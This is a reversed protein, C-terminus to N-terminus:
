VELEGSILKPLLRDRAQKLNSNSKNLVLIKAIMPSAVNEFKEIIRDSPNLIRVNETRIPSLNQQAAGNALSNMTDFMDNSRFLCYAYSPYKSDLKAVRQNLLYNEGNVLCVRGVNGTLSLLIDGDNLICHSPMKSPIESIANVNQGDFNGDQVNKITVIKYKGDDVFDSSKFAYGSLLSVVSKIEDLRWGQPVGDIIPTNKYGPFRLNVFWEKYLRQATEELLKIQKRNNEIIDDYASLIQVISKQEKLSPLKLPIGSLITTNLNLMTYGVAHNVVWGVTEPMQLRYFIYKSDAKSSDVTVLICGTGCLWGAEHETAYACRGVDGRRSYLIDGAEIKHRSLRNVHDSGVRAISDESIKGNILDKPMVVPIGIESYDSQHLQSGFPGTQINLSVTGLTTEKLIM